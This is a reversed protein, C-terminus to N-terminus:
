PAVPVRAPREKSCALSSLSVDYTDSDSYDLSPSFSLPHFFLVLSLTCLLLLHSLSSSYVPLLLFAQPRKRCGVCRRQRQFSGM